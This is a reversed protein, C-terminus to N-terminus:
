DVSLIPGYLEKAEELNLNPNVEQLWEFVNGLTVMNTSGRWGTETGGAELYQSKRTKNDNTLKKLGMLYHPLTINKVQNLHIKECTCDIDCPRQYCCEIKTKNYEFKILDEYVQQLDRYNQDQREYRECIDKYKKIQEQNTRELDDIIQDKCECKECQDKYKQSLEKYAQQQADLDKRTAQNTNKLSYIIQEQCECKERLDKNTQSLEEYAQQLADLDECTTRLLDWVKPTTQKKMGSIIASLLRGLVQAL